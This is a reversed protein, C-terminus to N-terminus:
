DSWIYGAPGYPNEFLLPCYDRESLLMQHYAPVIQTLYFSYPQSTRQMATLVSMPVNSFAQPITNYFTLYLLQTTPDYSASTIQGPWTVTFGSTTNPCPSPATALAPSAALLFLLALARVCPVM